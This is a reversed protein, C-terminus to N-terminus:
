KICIMQCASINASIAADVIWLCEKGFPEIFSLMTEVNVNLDGLQEALDKPHVGNCQNEVYTM